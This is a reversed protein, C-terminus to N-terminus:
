YRKTPEIEVHAVGKIATKANSTSSLKYIRNKGRGLRRWRPAIADYDENALTITSGSAWSTGGDDSWTLALALEGHGPEVEAEFSHHVLRAGGGTVKRTTIRRTIANGEDQYVGSSLKLLKGNSHDGVLHENNFFQYCTGRYRGDIADYSEWKSWLGTKINYCWTAHGTPFTFILFEDGEFPIVYGIADALTTYQAWQYEIQRTSIREPDLGRAARAIGFSDIFFLTRNYVCASHPSNTGVYGIAGTIREFPFTANGSDFWIEITSKGILWLDNNVNVIRQLNDPDGEATAYGAATWSTPDDLASIYFDGTGGSNVIYYGDIYACSVPNAPFDADDIKAFTDAVITYGETGDVFFLKSGDGAAFHVVGTNTDLTGKNTNTGGITRKYIRAGVVAWLAGGMQAMGRVPNDAYLTTEVSLGPRGYFAPIGEQEDVFPTLNLCEQANINSSYDSYAGAM